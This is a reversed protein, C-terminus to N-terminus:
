DRGKLEGVLISGIVNGAIIFAMKVLASTSIYKGLMMYGIDAICHEGGMLIFGAVCIVAVFTKAVNNRGDRNVCVAIAMLMGCLLGSCYLELTNHSFKASCLNNAVEYIQVSKASLLAIYSVIACGITNGFLFLVMKKFGYKHSDVAKGTFLNAQLEFVSVLGFAFMVAGVIHNELSVYLVSALCILAGAIISKRLEM